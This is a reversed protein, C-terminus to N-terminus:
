QLRRARLGGRLAPRIADAEAPQVGLRRQEPGKDADRQGPAHPLCQFARDLDELRASLLSRRRGSVAPPTKRKPRSSLGPRATLGECRGNPAGIIVWSLGGSASSVTLPGPSACKTM